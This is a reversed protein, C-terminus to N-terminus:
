LGAGCTRLVYVLNSPLKSLFSFNRLFCTLFFVQVQLVRQGDGDGDDFDLVPQLAKMFRLQAYMWLM